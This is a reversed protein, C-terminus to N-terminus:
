HRPPASADHEEPLEDDDESLDLVNGTVSFIISRALIEPEMSLLHVKVIEDATMALGARELVLKQVRAVKETVAEAANPFTPHRTEGPTDPASM